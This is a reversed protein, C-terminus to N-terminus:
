SPISGAFERSDFQRTTMYRAFYRGNREVFGAYVSEGKANHNAPEGVLFASGEQRVPPMCCLQEWHMSETTEIWADPNAKMADWLQSWEPLQSM